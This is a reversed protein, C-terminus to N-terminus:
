CKRGMSPRKWSRGTHGFAHGPSHLTEVHHQPAEQSVLLKGSGSAMAAGCTNVIEQFIRKAFTSDAGQHANSRFKEGGLGSNAFYKEIGQEFQTFNVGGMAAGGFSEMEKYLKEATGPRKALMERLGQLDESEPIRTKSARHRHNCGKGPNLGKCNRIRQKSNWIKSMIYRCHTRAHQPAACCLSPCRSTCIDDCRHVAGLPAIPHCRYRAALWRKAQAYRRLLTFGDVFRGSRAEDRDEADGDEEDTDDIDREGLRPHYLSTGGRLM